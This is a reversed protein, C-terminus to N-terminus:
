LLKVKPRKGQEPLVGDELGYTVTVYYQLVAVVAFLMFMASGHKAPHHDYYWGMLGVILACMALLGISIPFSPVDWTYQKQVGYIAFIGTLLTTKTVTGGVLNSFAINISQTKGKRSLSISELVEPMESAIPALFFALLVPSLGLYQEAIM